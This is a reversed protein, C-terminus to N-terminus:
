LSVEWGKAYERGWLEMAKPDLMKGSQADVDFGNGIRYAVNGYHVLAMSVSADDIPAQLTEKGRITNFFNEVHVTTMGGGGGLVVGGEKHKANVTKVLNGDRDYLKYLNRDVFVSGESGYIITGRGAGYTSYGNRSKGDWQITKDNDFKFTALMTDYMEWGDNVFATKSGDVEVHNPFGVDLAWRAVDLEHTGNNGLEATGYNWGYWHWNYNWTESTYDRRTAPGQFLDWDLGTPIAAPKQLPVEGRKNSFFAVAKYPTGIVGNHIEKIIAITHDASRQQNGMQVVRGYKKQAAVLLENEAMNHSCPKEVYVHKGEKLAMISGPAHWHDPTLNFLADVKKDELVKRIDNELKPTYNLRTSLNEAAKVRQSEMVDCLYVLEVNNRELAIPTYMGNVRRGLGAIALQIRDNAGIVKRYSKASLKTGGLMFGATGIATTRIFNRRSNKM